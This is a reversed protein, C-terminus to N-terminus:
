CFRKEHPEREREKKREREGERKKRKDLLSAFLSLSSHVRMHAHLNPVFANM